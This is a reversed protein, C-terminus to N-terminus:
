LSSSSSPSLPLSLSSYSMLSTGPLLSTLAPLITTSLPNIAHLSSNALSSLPIFSAAALFPNGACSAGPQLLQLQQLQQLQQMGQVDSGGGLASQVYLGGGGGGGEQGSVGLFGHHTHAHSHVGGTQAGQVGSSQQRPSNQSGMEGLSSNGVGTLAVTMNNRGANQRQNGAQTAAFAFQLM